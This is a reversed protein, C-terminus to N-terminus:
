TWVKPCLELPLSTSKNKYIVKIEKFCLNFSAERGFFLEIQGDRKVSCWSTVPLCLCLSVPALAMALTLALMANRPYFRLESMM